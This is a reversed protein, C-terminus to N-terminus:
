CTGFLPWTLNGSALLLLGCYPWLERPCPQSRQCDPPKVASSLCHRPWAAM